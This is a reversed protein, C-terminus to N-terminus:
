AVLYGLYLPESPVPADPRAGDICSDDAQGIIRGSRPHRAAVLAPNGHRAQRRECFPDGSALGIRGSAPGIRASTATANRRTLPRRLADRHSRFEASVASLFLQVHAV